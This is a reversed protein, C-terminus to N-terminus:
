SKKLNKILSILLSYEKIKLLRVALIYTPIAVIPSVLLKFIDKQILLNSIYLLVVTILGCLLIPLLDIFQKIAGYNMIKGPSYTNIFFHVMTSLLEALAIYFIGHPLATVLLSIRVIIKIYEQKLVLDTKGLVYLLNVNIGSILTIFRAFCFIQMIPVARLWKETLLVKIIPEAMVALCLFFPASVLATIRLIHKVYKLLAKRQDQIPSLGPLIVSNISTNIIGFLFDSFQIGRTFFGLDKSGIYKGILISNIQSFSTNLLSSVLLKSGYSFMQKFSSISFQLVPKWKSWIRTLVATAISRFLTQFVLAWVGYGMYALYIAMIGSLITAIFNIKAITKFDLDITFLTSSVTYLANIILSIALTRLLLTLSAIEYFEAIFPAAFWLIWYCLVSIAVNFLFVTSIDETNRNKKQILAKTFGSDIFVRSISIFVALIAFVGYENPSLIRALVIGLLFQVAQISLREIGSWAM